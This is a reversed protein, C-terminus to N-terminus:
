LFLWWRVCDLWLVLPSFRFFSSFTISKPESASAIKPAHRTQSTTSNRMIRNAKSNVEETPSFRTLPRGRGAKSCRNSRDLDASRALPFGSRVDTKNSGGNTRENRREKTGPRLGSSTRTLGVFSARELGRYFCCSTKKGFYAFRFVIHLNSNM